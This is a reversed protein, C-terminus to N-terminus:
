PLSQKAWVSNSIGNANRAQVRWRYNGNALTVGPTHACTPDICTLWPSTYVVKNTSIRQIQVRYETASDAAYWTVTGIIDGALNKATGPSKVTFNKWASWVINSSEAANRTAIRWQYDANPLTKTGVFSCVGSTCTVTQWGSNYVVKRTVTDRVVVSYETANAVESWAFTPMPNAVITDIPSQPVARNPFLLKFTAFGPTRKVYPTGNVVRRVQLVWNYAGNPLALPLVFACETDADCQTASKSLWPSQYAVTNDSVKRITLRADVDVGNLPDSWQMSPKAVNVIVNDKPATITPISPNLPTPTPTFTLSPTLSPTISPTWTFTATPTIPTFTPTITPTIPTFTPTHTNTPSEVTLIASTSTASGNDGMVLARFQAGNDNATSAITLTASTAGSINSWTNNILRQWQYRLNAGNAAVSFSVNSGAASTRNVPNATIQTRTPCLTQQGYYLMMNDVHVDGHVSPYFEGRLFSQPNQLTITTQFCRWETPVIDASVSAQQSANIGAAWLAVNVNQSSSGRLWAAFTWKQGAQSSIAVDQYASSCNPYRASKGFAFYYSGQYAPSAQTSAFPSRECSNVDPWFNINDYRGTEFGTQQFINSTSNLGKKIQVRYQGSGGQSPSIVIYFNGTGGSPVNLILNGTVATASTVGVGGQTVVTATVGFNAEVLFHIPGNDAPWIEYYHRAQVSPTVTTPGNVWQDFYLRGGDVISPSTGSGITGDNTVSGWQCVRSTGRVLCGNYEASGNEVLWGGVYHNHIDVVLGNRRLSFHVHNGTASGGCGVATSIQGVATGRSISQGNSVAENILHYYGTQWGNSHDVRVFNPCSSARWVVGDAASRAIGSGGAFDLSSWPGSGTNTHPGGTLSWTEGTAWPLSLQHENVSRTSIEQYIQVYDAPVLSNPMSSLWNGYLETHELTVQWRKEWKGAFLLMEPAGDGSAPKFCIGFGWIGMVKVDSVFIESVDAGLAKSAAKKAELILGETPYLSKENDKLVTVTEDGVSNDLKSIDGQSPVSNANSADASVVGMQTTQALTFMNFAFVLVLLVPIARVLSKRRQLM